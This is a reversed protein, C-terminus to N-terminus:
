TTWSRLGRPILGFTFPNTEGCDQNTSRVRTLMCYRGGGTMGPEDGAAGRSSPPSVRDPRCSLCPEKQIVSEVCSRASSGAVSSAFLIAPLVTDGTSATSANSARMAVRSGFSWAKVSTKASSARSAASPASRAIREPWATPGRCPTGIANFSRISMSPRMVMPPEAAWRARIAVRVAVM